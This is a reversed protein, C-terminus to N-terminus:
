PLFYVAQNPRNSQIKFRHPALGPNIDASMSILPIDLMIEKLILCVLQLGIAIRNKGV